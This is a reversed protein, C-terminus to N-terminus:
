QLQKLYNLAEQFTDVPVIEMDTGISEAVRKAEHYNSDERGNEYPVFFIDCDARNAAIVKKDVGGIRKVNGHYDLEGTGIVKYGKTLDEEVLQDYIELAFMLGASPGGIRGSSFHVEPEVHIDRDTVLRVGIGVRDSDEFRELTLTVTLTQEDRVLDIDVTDGASKAQIYNILDDAEKINQGDIALIHDGVKLKGEAPMNEVVSTVYVGKYEIDIQKNAAQYAVVVSAEQSTEMMQLQAQMYEEDTLDGRVDKVPLVDHYPLAKAWLFQFPTAQGGSVTVLHMDGESQYGGEVTVINDLADARGPKYIYYPLKYTTLFSGLLIVVLAFVLHRKTWKM